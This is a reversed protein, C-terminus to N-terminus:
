DHDAVGVNSARAQNLREGLIQAVRLSWAYITLSPNVRSSRPLVSGDVVYLSELGHVRGNPDVVSNAPDRGTTLTGSVHATGAPGVRESFAVLGARLLAQRFTRVLGHHEALPLPSRAADYDLLPLNQTAASEAVVRNDAHAGDETQLFFGYARAGIQRALFRPVLRPILNGILEGDFGLPQVSSHPLDDHLFLRTKRILDTKRAASVAVVATLLHMKLNRGVNVHCPLRDDLANGDIFKQLLRPSHLAGAALIVARARYEAGNALRVGAVRAAYGPGRGFDAILAAVTAQTLVTLNPEAKVRDLFTNEADSKLGDPSAFGDFHSAEERDDLIRPALGLPLAECRWDPARRALRAVISRLDPECEFDRVGLMQEAQAYYPSLEEYPLPWGTYRHSPEAAFERESYRLLAAGYWKTKGGLNFYEEPKFRRGAGDLWEEGSKFRGDRIVQGVDLTSRDRPLEGGKELLLVRLGARVLNYVAACGGAGSGVVIVDHDAACAASAIPTTM